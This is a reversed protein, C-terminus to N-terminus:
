VESALMDDVTQRRRIVRFQGEDVLVEAPMPRRNYNSSMVVGYAGADLMPSCITWRRSRSPANSASRTPRSASPASSIPSSRPRAKTAARGARHSSVRRLARPADARDHRRRSDRVPARGARTEPRRRAGLLAGSQAVMSRGPEVILSLGTRRAADILVNAYARSTRCRTARATTPSASAAASISTSSRFATRGQAGARADVLRDGANRLPDLSTMQSGLHIHVGVVELGTLHKTEAADRARRELPVGFKNRKLGTSIHPHTQADVDPNIRLAVRVRKGQAKAIADIRALEGASEANIAKLGLSVARELEARTKGVGTFVIQEPTFGARLALEIEGM